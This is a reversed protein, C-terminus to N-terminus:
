FGCHIRYPGDGAPFVAVEGHCCHGGPRGPRPEGWGLKWPVMDYPDPDFPCGPGLSSSIATLGPSCLITELFPGQLGSSRWASFPGSGHPRIERAELGALDGLLVPCSEMGCGSGMSSDLLVLYSGAYPGSFIVLSGIGIASGDEQGRTVISVQGATEHGPEPISPIAGWIPELVDAELTSNKGESTLNLNELLYHARGLRINGRYIYAGDDGEIEAKIEGLTRNEGLLRRVFSPDLGRVREVQLRVPLTENDPGLAFGRDSRVISILVPPGDGRPGLDAIECFVICPVKALVEDEGSGSVEFPFALGTGALSMLLVMALGQGLVRRFVSKM